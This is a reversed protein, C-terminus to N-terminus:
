SCGRVSGTHNLKLHKTGGKKVRFGVSATRRQQDQSACGKQGLLTTGKPKKGNNDDELAKKSKGVRM